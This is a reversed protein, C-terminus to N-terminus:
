SGFINVAKEMNQRIAVGFPCRKECQGCKICESAKHELSMYHQKVTEPIDESSKALNLFKTVTAVDIKVPCPACHGCYMCHGTWSIKPFSALAAAYDKEEDTATEFKLVQRLEEISKSGCMVSSVAPRTLAYGLCQIVTLAKGAPSLKDDLLDGGAFAKMVDIGIGNKQCLEYLQEKKPDINKMDHSYSDKGFM